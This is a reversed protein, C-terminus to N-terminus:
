SKCFSSVLLHAIVPTRNPRLIVRLRCQPCSRPDVKLARDTDSENPSMNRFAMDDTTRQRLPSIQNTM